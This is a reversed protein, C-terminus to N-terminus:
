EEFKVNGASDYQLLWNKTQKAAATSDKSYWHSTYKQFNNRSLSRLFLEDFFYLPRVPNSAQDYNEFTEVQFHTTDNGFRNVGMTKIQTLNGAANYTFDKYLIQNRDKTVARSIAQQDYYFFTTDLAPVTNTIERIAKVMRGNELFIWKRDPAVQLNKYTDKRTIQIQNPAYTVEDYLSDSFIFDYGTTSNLPLLAGTRKLVNGNADYTLYVRNKPDHPNPMVSGPYDMYLIRYSALTPASPQGVTVTDDDKSCAALLLTGALLSLLLKNM